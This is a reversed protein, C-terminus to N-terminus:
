GGRTVARAALQPAPVHLTEVATCTSADGRRADHARTTVTAHGMTKNM